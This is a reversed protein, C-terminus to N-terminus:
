VRNIVITDGAYYTYVHQRHLVYVISREECFACTGVVLLYDGCKVDLPESIGNAIYKHCGEDPSIIDGPLVAQTVPNYM